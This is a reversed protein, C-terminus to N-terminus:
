TFHLEEHSPIEVPENALTQLWQEITEEEFINIHFPYSTLSHKSSCVTHAKNADRRPKMKKVFDLFVLILGVVSTVLIKGEIEEDEGSSVM